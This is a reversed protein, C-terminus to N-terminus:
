RVRVFEADEVKFLFYERSSDGFEDLTFSDQLGKFVGTNLLCRKIEDTSLNAAKKLAASLLLVTEYSYVSAFTPEENYRAFYSNRFEIFEPNKNMKDYVGVFYTGEIARGGKEISDNTMGWMGSYIIMEPKKAKITQVYLGLDVGGSIILVGEAGSEIIKDSETEYDLDPASVFSGEHCIEGGNQTYIDKFCTIIDKAYNRNNYEYIIALKGEPNFEVATRALIEGQYRNSGIIRLFDDDKGSLSDASMLPSIMLIDAKEFVELGAIGPGSTMHGIGATIGKSILEEDKKVA